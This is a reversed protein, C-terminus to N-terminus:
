DTANAMIYITGNYSQAAIGGPVDLWYYTTQNTGAPAPSIIEQYDYSLEYGTSYTSVRNWTINGVRIYYSNGSTMDTGKIYIGEADNSNEDLSVNIPNNSACAGTTNPSLSSQISGTCDPNLYYSNILNDSLHLILVISIEVTANETHNSSASSGTFLVGIKWYTHLNGTANVNWTLTCSDGENLPNNSCSKPNTNTWFPTDGQTTSIATDPNNSSANYRVTGQVNGCNGNTCNVTANVVFTKNQGVQTTVAPSPLLLKVILKGTPATINVTTNAETPQTSNYYITSNDTINCKPYYIGTSYSSTDWTKVAYGSSNTLASGLDISSTSNEIYFHVPYNEIGSSTNVDQVKCTLDVSSGQSYNGDQPSIWSVNAWGYVTWTLTTASQNQNGATDNAYFTANWTGVEYSYEDSTLNYTNQTLNSLYVTVYDNSKPRGLNVWVKDIGNADYADVTLNITENYHILSPTHLTENEVNPAKTDIHITTSDENVESANYYLTSNDSINCSLTHSGDALNDTNWTYTAYGNSDTLSTTLFNGDQYFNVPYNSIGSSSNADTVRCELQIQQNSQYFGDQPSIWEVKSWGLIFITVNDQSDSYYQKSTIIKILESGVDHTAPIQWTTNEGTGIQSSSDYWTASDPSVSIGNEDKTTSNLEVVDGKHYTNGNLPSIITTNLEGTLTLTTGDSNDIAYYYKSSDSTISCTMSEPGVDVSSANWYLIAIGSSNTTNSGIFNTSNYFEVNYNEIGWNGDMDKVLCELKLLGRKVTGTPSQWYIGARGWVTFNKYELSENWNDYPDAAKIKAVHIGTIWQGDTQITYNTWNGTYPSSIVYEYITENTSNYLVTANGITENWHAYILVPDGKILSTDNIDYENDILFPPTIDAGPPSTHLVDSGQNNSTANYKLTTNDTINCVITEDGTSPDTFTFRAWGTSNTVNTGLENTSNYFHVVYNGIGEGSDADRVRCMMTTQENQYIYQDTLYANSIESWGWVEIWHLDTVNENGFSDNAYIKWGIIGPVFSINSWTFNSWSENGTLPSNYTTKNKWEGTENTSLWTHDLQYNDTWYAHLNITENKHIITM